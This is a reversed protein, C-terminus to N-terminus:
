RDLPHHLPLRITVRLGGGDANEATVVGDHMAVARRAIALGLGVGGAQSSRGADVRHFPAFIRELEAPPVGPGYDRVLVFADSAAVDVAVMVSGGAPTHRVANRVVNDIARALLAPRGNVAPSALVELVVSKQQRAAEFEADEAVDRVVDALDFVKRADAGGDGYEARALSLVDGILVNMREAEAEIRTLDGAAADGAKRRALELAVNLRALPSRLEHSIDLLLQGQAGILSEIRAAMANFAKGLDGIEDRRAATAPGARAQLDGGALRLSADRVDQLPRALSRAMWFCVVGSIVISVLVAAYPFSPRMRREFFGQLPSGVVILTEGGASRVVSTTTVSAPATGCRPQGDADLLALAVRGEDALTEVYAACGAPGQRALIGAAVMGDQHLHDAFRVDLRTNPLVAFVAIQVAFILWFSLFIKLAIGRM